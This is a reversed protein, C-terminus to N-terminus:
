RGADDDGDCKSITAIGSEIRKSDIEHQLTHSKCKKHATIKHRHLKKEVHAPASCERAACERSVLTERSYVCRSTNEKYVNQNNTTTLRHKSKSVTDSTSKTGDKANMKEGEPKSSCLNPIKKSICGATCHEKVHVCSRCTQCV